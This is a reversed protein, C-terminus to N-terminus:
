IGQAKLSKIHVSCYLSDSSLAKKNNVRKFQPLLLASELYPQRVMLDPRFDQSDWGM